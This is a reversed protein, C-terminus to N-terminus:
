LTASQWFSGKPARSNAGPLYQGLVQEGKERNVPKRQTGDPESMRGVGLKYENLLLPFLHLNFMHSLHPSQLFIRPIEGLQGKM